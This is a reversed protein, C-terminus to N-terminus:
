QCFREMLLRYVQTATKLDNVNVSENPAHSNGVSQGAGWVLCEVGLRSFVSAETGMTIKELAPSLGLDGLIEQARSVFPLTPPTTFGKRYDKVRLTAGVSQVAQELKKIWNECVKDPVSSPLRCSGTLRIDTDFTRIMGVNVTPHPPRFGEDRHTKLEEALELFSVYMKKLKPLIPDKLGAATDIELVSDGPVSNYNIGGDMDMIAIGEPMQALYALMKMIANEGTSPDSSHAAKGAFMKSQTTASELLDHDRRYDREQDSFPISIELVALGQGSTVLKMDTPEGIFAHTANIKKRRMLKIAGNMGTQAGFTGVLVFPIKMPRKAMEKAAELKCLFDLKVDATGLGYILDNYISANFPNSQTKTWQSFHAAEVTDLHTQFLIEKAPIGAQPRAIVNCQDVGEMSERQYEVHLGAQECLHGAFEASTLNGHSPTSDLAILRRCNELFSSVTENL